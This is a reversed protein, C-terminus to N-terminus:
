SSCHAVFIKWKISYLGIIQIEIIRVDQGFLNIKIGSTLKWDM